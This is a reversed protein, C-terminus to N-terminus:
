KPRMRRYTATGAKIGAKVGRQLVDAHALLRRVRPDLAKTVQDVTRLTADLTVRLQRELQLLRQRTGGRAQTAQGRLVTLRGELKRLHGEYEHLRGKAVRLKERVAQLTAM